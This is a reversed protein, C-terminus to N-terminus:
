EDDSSSDELIARKNSRHAPPSSASAERGSAEADDNNDQTIPRVLVFFPTTHREFARFCLALITVRTTNSYFYRPLVGRIPSERVRGGGGGRASRITHSLAKFRQLFAATGRRSYRTSSVKYHRDHSANSNGYRWDPQHPLTGSQTNSYQM